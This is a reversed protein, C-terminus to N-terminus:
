QCLLPQFLPLGLIPVAGAALTASAEALYRSTLALTEYMRGLVAEDIKGMDNEGGEPVSYACRVPSSGATELGWLQCKTSGKPEAAEWGESTGTNIGQLSVPADKPHERRKVGPGM